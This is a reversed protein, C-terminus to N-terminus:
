PAPPMGDLRSWEGSRGGSKQILSIDGIVMGRDVAKAMDYVTLLTVSAGTLAEMEIGTKGTTRVTVRVRVGPLSEDPDLDVQVDTLLLTHCLPILEATRKAAMVGALRATGIVDGKHMGTGGRRIAQLTSAQMTITGTAVAVRETDPKASVDVMRAKGQADVHSLGSPEPPPPKPSM